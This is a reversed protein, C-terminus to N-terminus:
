DDDDYEEIAFDELENVCLYDSLDCICSEADGDALASDHGVVAMIPHSGIESVGSALRSSQGFGIEVNKVTIGLEQEREGRHWCWVLKQLYGYGTMKEGLENWSRVFRQM